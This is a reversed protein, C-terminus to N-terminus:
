RIIIKLFKSVYYNGMDFFTYSLQYLSGKYKKLCFYLNLRLMKNFGTNNGQLHYIKAKPVYIFNLNLRTIEYGWQLDEAYMFLDDPLKRGPLDILLSKNFMYFTGWIWDVRMIDEAHTSYIMKNAISNFFKPLRLIQMLLRKITPFYEASRQISGDRNLLQCGVVGIKKDSILIEYCISIADNILVTDNNLLLIVDGNANTIGLNNGKSFGLNTESKILKIRKDIAAVGSIDGKGSANDVVIIEYKCNKTHELISLVCAKTMEPKNYNIIIISIM